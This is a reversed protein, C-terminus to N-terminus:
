ERPGNLVSNLNRYLQLDFIEPNISETYGLVVGGLFNALNFLHCANEPSSM